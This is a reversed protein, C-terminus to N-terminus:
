GPLLPLLLPTEQAGAGGPPDGPPFSAAVEPPFTETFRCDFQDASNGYRSDSAGYPLM